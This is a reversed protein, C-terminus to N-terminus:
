PPQSTVRMAAYYAAVDAAKQDDLMPAVASMMENQREGSRYAALQRELYSAASGAITPMDPLKPLGDMGHCSQCIGAAIRHGAAADGAPADQALAPGALLVGAIAASTWMHRRGM